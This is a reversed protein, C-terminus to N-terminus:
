SGPQRADQPPAKSPSDGSDFTSHYCLFGPSGWMGYSALREYIQGKPHLATMKVAPRLSTPLLNKTSSVPLDGGSVERLGFGLPCSYPGHGHPWM